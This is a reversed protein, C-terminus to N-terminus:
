KVKRNTGPEYQERDEQKVVNQLNNYDIEESQKNRENFFSPNNFSSPKNNANM